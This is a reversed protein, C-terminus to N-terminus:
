EIVLQITWEDQCETQTKIKGKLIYPKLWDILHEYIDDYAKIDCKIKLTKHEKNFITTHPNFIQSWRHSKGFIHNIPIEPEESVSFIGYSKGFKAQSLEEWMDGSSLKDLIDLMETSTDDKLTVNLKLETYYGM